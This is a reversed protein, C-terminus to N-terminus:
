VELTMVMKTMCQGAGVKCAREPRRGEVSICISTRHRVEGGGHEWVLAQAQMCVDALVVTDGKMYICGGMSRVGRGNVGMMCSCACMDLRVLTM